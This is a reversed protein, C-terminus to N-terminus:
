QHEISIEKSGDYGIQLSGWQAVTELDDLFTNPLPRVVTAIVRAEQARLPVPGKAVFWLMALIARIAYRDWKLSELLDENTMWEYADVSARFEASFLKGSHEIDQLKASILEALAHLVVSAPMADKGFASASELTNAYRLLLRTLPLLAIAAAAVPDTSLGYKLQLRPQNEIRPTLDHGGWFRIQPSKRAANWKNVEDVAQPSLSSTTVFLLIDASNSQAFAIKEWVTPWSVSGKYRKCEIYWSERRTLGSLDEIFWDGQVDRGTDRGPTRWVCNKLGLAQMLDFILSEFQTASLSAPSKMAM